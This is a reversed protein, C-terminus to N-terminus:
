KWGGISPNEPSDSSIKGYAGPSREQHTPSNGPYKKFAQLRERRAIRTKEPM